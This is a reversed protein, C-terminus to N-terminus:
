LYARPNVPSWDGGSWVEWHLHVGSSNGTSGMYGITQGKKVVQGAGVAGSRLHAYLTSLSGGHAIIIIYAPNAEYQNWGAYAVVGNGAAVVRSGSSGAIDIGDHFHPCSGRSPNVFYGTCGYDQSITGTAPWVFHGGGSGAGVGGGGFRATAKAQASAVLNRVKAQLASRQSRMKAAMAAAQKKNKVILRMQAEQRERVKETRKKLAELRREATALQKKLEVVKDWTDETERRLQDTRLRTSTTLLRLTDLAQQDQTIQQALQADQEGYSLYASTDTLVDSFSDATFVQEILSTNESRYAEAFRLLMAERRAKLDAEGNALEQELLGLTFDTQRQEEVLEGHRAKIRQIRAKARNIRERTAVLDTRIDKLDERTQTLDTATEKEDAKLQAVLKESKSISKTLAAQRDKAASIQDKLSAAEAAPAPLAPVMLVVVFMLVFLRLWPVAAGQARANVSPVNV